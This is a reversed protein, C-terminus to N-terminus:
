RWVSMQVQDSEVRVTLPQLDMGAGATRKGSSIDFACTHWPCFLTEGSLRGMHLPLASGPCANPFAHFGSTSHCLVVDMKEVECRQMADLPLDHRGILAVWRQRKAPKITDIPVFRPQVPPPERHDWKISRFAGFATTIADHVMQRLEFEDCEFSGRLRLHPMGDTIRVVEVDANKQKLLPRASDLAEQWQVLEPLPLVDYLLLLASVRPDEAAREILEHNGSAVILEVLRLIADRHISDVAQLLELVDERVAANPHNEFRRTLEDAREVLKDFADPAPDSIPDVM